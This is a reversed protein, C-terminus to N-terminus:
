HLADPPPPSASWYAQCPPPYQHSIREGQTKGPCLFSHVSASAQARTRGMNPWIGSQTELVTEADACAVPGQPPPVAALARGLEMSWMHRLGAIPHPLDWCCRKKRGSPGEQHNHLAYQPCRQGLRPSHRPPQQIKLYILHLFPPQSVSSVPAGVLFICHGAKCAEPCIGEQAASSCWKLM